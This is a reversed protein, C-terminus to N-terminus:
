PTMQKRTPTPSPRLGAVLAQAMGSTLEGDVQAQEVHRDGGDVVPGRRALAGEEDAPLNQAAVASPLAALTALAVAPLLTARRM